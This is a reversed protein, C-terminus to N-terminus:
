LHVQALLGLPGCRLIAEYSLLARHKKCDDHHYQVEVARYLQQHGVSSCVIPGLSGAHAESFGLIDVFVVGISKRQRCYVLLCVFAVRSNFEGCLEMNRAGAALEDSM